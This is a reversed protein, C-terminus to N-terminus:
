NFLKLARPGNSTTGHFPGRRAAGAWGLTDASFTLQRGGVVHVFHLILAGGEGEGEGEFHRVDKKEEPASIGPSIRACVCVAPKVSPQTRGTM